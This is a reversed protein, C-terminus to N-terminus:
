PADFMSVEKVRELVELVSHDGIDLVKHELYLFRRHSPEVCERFMYLSGVSVFVGNCLDWHEYM